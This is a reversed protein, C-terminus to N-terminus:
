SKRRRLGFAVLGLGVAIQAWTGPEPVSVVSVNDLSGGAMDSVGLASFTLTASGSTGLDALGSYRQWENGSTGGAADELVSGQLTGLSFGIGNTGSPWNMRPSYWFSLRVLGTAHIVQSMGSNYYTDLEVFNRGDQAVGDYNSRLEIDPNGTWGTLNPTILWYNANPEDAEFSGNVVLNQASAAHALAALAAAALIHRPHM